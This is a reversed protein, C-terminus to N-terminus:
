IGWQVQEHLPLRAQQALFKRLRGRARTVLDWVTDRQGDVVTAVSRLLTRVASAGAAAGQAEALAATATQVADRCAFVAEFMAVQRCAHGEKADRVCMRVKAYAAVLDTVSQSARVVAQASSPPLAM